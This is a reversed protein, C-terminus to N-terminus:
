TTNEEMSEHPITAFPRRKNAIYLSGSFHKRLGVDIKIEFKATESKAFLQILKQSKSKDSVFMPPTYPMGFSGPFINQGMKFPKNKEVQGDTNLMATSRCM